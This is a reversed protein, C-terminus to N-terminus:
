FSYNPEATVITQVVGDNGYINQIYDLLRGTELIDVVANRTTAIRNCFKRTSTVMWIGYQHVEQLCRREVELKDRRSGICRREVELVMSNRVMGLTEYKIISVAM